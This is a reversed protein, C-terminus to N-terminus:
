IRVVWGIFESKKERRTKRGRNHYFDYLSNNHMEEKVNDHKKNEKKL